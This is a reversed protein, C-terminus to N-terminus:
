LTEASGPSFHVRSIPDKWDHQTDRFRCQKPKSYRRCKDVMKISKQPCYPWIILYQTCINNRAQGNKLLVLEDVLDTNDVTHTSCWKRQRFSPRGDWYGTAKAVVQLCPICELRQQSVRIICSLM